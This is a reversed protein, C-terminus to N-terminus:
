FSTELFLLTELPVGTEIFHEKFLIKGMESVFNGNKHALVFRPNEKTEYLVKFLKLLL